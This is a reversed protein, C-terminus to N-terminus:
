QGDAAPMVAFNHPRRHGRLDAVAAEARSVRDGLSTDVSGVMGTSAIASRRLRAPSRSRARMTRVEGLGLLVPAGLVAPEPLGAREATEGALM